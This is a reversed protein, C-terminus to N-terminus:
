DDFISEGCILAVLRELDNNDTFELVLRKVKGTNRIQVRRGLQKQMKKELVARYDITLRGTKAEEEGSKEPKATNLRRALAETERVSLEKEAVIGAAVLLKDADEIMLLARGHGKSLRGSEIMALVERPLSLIRLTNTIESRSKSVRGAVEEQTLGYEDILSRYAEAEEIPSLDERQLNEILSLEATKRDDAEIIVAPIETLGALKAARWRREGAILEYLGNVTRRVAVPQIVGHEAISSALEELAGQEFNKRPQGARPQIESIKLSVGAGSPEQEISNDYLLSSMGRGLGSSRSKAM